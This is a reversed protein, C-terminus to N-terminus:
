VEDKGNSLLAVVYIQQVIAAIATSWRRGVAQGGFLAGKRGCIAVARAGDGDCALLALELFALPRGEVLRRPVARPPADRRNDDRDHEDDAGGDPTADAARLVVRM